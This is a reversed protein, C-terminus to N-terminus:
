TVLLMPLYLTALMANVLPWGHHGSGYDIRRRFDCARRSTCATRAGVAAGQENPELVDV